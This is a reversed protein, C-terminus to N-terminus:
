QQVLGTLEESLHWLTDGIVPDYQTHLPILQRQDDFFVGTAQAVEPATALDVGIACTDKAWLATLRMIAKLWWPAHKALKSTVLGPYFAVSTVGTGQLRRALTFVFYHRAITAQGTAKLWSFQQRGQLDQLDLTPNKLFAPRVGVTVVRAPASAHLVDLLQTTLYFHSLYNVAFTLENGEATFQQDFYLAGAANVLVHLNNFRRKFEASASRISSLLSLDAVLFEARDNGTVETIHRIGQQGSEATRSLIVVKGGQAALGTAIAQGVGSTGGTILYVQNREALDTITTNTMGCLEAPSIPGSYGFSSKNYGFAL